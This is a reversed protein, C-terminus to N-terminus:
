YHGKLSIIIVIVREDEVKYVMRNGKDIRRSWFGSLNGKLQEVQGTGTFPHLRLEEILDRLKVLTKKRGSRRWELLHKEAESTLVINYTM